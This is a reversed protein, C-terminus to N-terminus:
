KVPLFLREPNIERGLEQQYIIQYALINKVYDRTEKYPITEIWMEIDMERKNKIWSNVRSPGANYAGEGNLKGKM